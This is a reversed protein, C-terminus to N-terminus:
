KCRVLCFGQGSASRRNQTLFTPVIFPSIKKQRVQPRGTKVSKSAAFKWTEDYLVAAAYERMDQSTYKTILVRQAKCYKSMWSVYKRARDEDSEAKRRPDALFEAKACDFRHAALRMTKRLDAIESYTWRGSELIKQEKILQMIHPNPTTRLVTDNRSVGIAARIKDEAHDWLKGLAKSSTYSKKTEDHMWQPKPLGSIREQM